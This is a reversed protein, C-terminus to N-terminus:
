SPNSHTLTCRRVEAERVDDDYRAMMAQDEDVAPDSGAAAAEM